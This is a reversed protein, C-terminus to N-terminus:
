RTKITDSRSVNTYIQPLRSCLYLVSSISGVTFGIIEKTSFPQLLFCTLVVHVEQEMIFMASCTLVSVINVLCGARVTVLFSIFFNVFFHQQRDGRNFEREASGCGAANPGQLGLLLHTHTCCLRSVAASLFVHRTYVACGVCVAGEQPWRCMWSFSNREDGCWCLERRFDLKVSPYLSLSDINFLVETNERLLIDHYNNQPFRDLTM